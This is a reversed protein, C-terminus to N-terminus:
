PILYALRLSGNVMFPREEYYTSSEAKVAPMIAMRFSGLVSLVFRSFHLDIGTEVIGHINFRRYNDMYSDDGKKFSLNEGTTKNKAKSFATSKVLYSSIGGIGSTWTLKSSIPTKYNLRVPLEIYHFREGTKIKWDNDSVSGGTYNSSYTPNKNVHVTGGQAYSLGFNIAWKDLLRRNVIVGANFAPLGLYKKRSTILNEALEIQSEDGKVEKTKNYVNNFYGAGVEIGVSWKGQQEQAQLTGLISVLILVVSIKNVM